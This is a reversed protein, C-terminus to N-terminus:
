ENIMDEIQKNLELMEAKIQEAQTIEEASHSDKDGLVCLAWIAQRLHRIEDYIGGEFTNCIKRGKMIKDSNVM